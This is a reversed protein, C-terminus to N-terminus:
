SSLVLDAPSVTWSNEFGGVGGPGRPSVAGDGARVSCYLETVERLLRQEQAQEHATVAALFGDNIRIEGLPTAEVYDLAASLAYLAHGNAQAAISTLRAADGAAFRRQDPLNLRAEFIFSRLVECLGTNTFNRERFTLLMWDYFVDLKPDLFTYDPEFPSGMLRGESELQRKLATGAYPLTRCFGAVSWGDGVFQRLFDINSRVTAMTSYPELLMFGFDFSLGLSRLIRGAEIPHHPKMMKNMNILGQEDGNEVGMYVHTLGSEVLRAMTEYHVEDARCSIKFAIKGKLGAQIVGEAIDEAWQRARRGTALFDDDQFLFVRVGRELHLQRMEEVVQAPSRLRRLKGGQAEYFPRISCFSCDWPCGRSGLVSALPLDQGAYDIDSREPFPLRDLDDLAPRLPNAVIEEGRRWAIGAIDRWDAGCGIRQMLEVLTAEGEFRVISDAGPIRQLVEAYDFSPYHGGITIHATCGHDRLAQVVRGFEPAMYQFILSLGIVDPRTQKAVQVLRTPDASYTEIRAAFGAKRVSSLLYRLGLNDQDQFGVLLVSAGPQERM